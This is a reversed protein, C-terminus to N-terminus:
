GQAFLFRIAWQEGMAKIKKTNTESRPGITSVNQYKLYIWALVMGLREHGTVGPTRFACIIGEHVIQFQYSNRLHHHWGSDVPHQAEVTARWLREGWSSLLRSVASRLADLRTTETELYHLSNTYQLIQVFLHFSNGSSNLAHKLFKNFEKHKKNHLDHWM